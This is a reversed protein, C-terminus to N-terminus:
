AAAGRFPLRRCTVAGRRDCRKREFYAVLRRRMEEYKEGRSDVGEDLWALLRQFATTTPTWRKKFEGHGPVTDM